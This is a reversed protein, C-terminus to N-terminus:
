LGAAGEAFQHKNIIVEVIASDGEANPSKMSLQMIKLDLTATTAITAGDVTLGSLKTTTSGATTTSYNANKGVHSAVSVVTGTKVQAEFLADISDLVTHYTLLSAAGYNLSVGTYLSTGPTSQYGTKISRIPNGAGGEAACSSAVGQVLDYMFIANSDGVPKGYQAVRCPAGGLTTMLPRFGFPSNPNAM